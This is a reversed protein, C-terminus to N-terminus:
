FLVLFFHNKKQQGDPHGSSHIKIVEIFTKNIFINNDKLNCYKVIATMFLLPPLCQFLSQYLDFQCLVNKFASVSVTM